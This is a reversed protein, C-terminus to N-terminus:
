LPPFYSRSPLVFRLILPIKTKELQLIIVRATKEILDITELTAEGDLVSEILTSLQGLGVRCPVCKGCTQAHCVKLFANSIDVPCIGAFREATLQLLTKGCGLVDIFQKPCDATSMPWLRSGVGGAMIVVHNLSSM